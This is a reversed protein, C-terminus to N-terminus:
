FKLGDRWVNEEAKQIGSRQFGKLFPFYNILFNIIRLEVKLVKVPHDLDLDVDSYLLVKKSCEELDSM